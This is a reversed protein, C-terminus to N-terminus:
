SNLIPVLFALRELTGPGTLYALLHPVPMKLRGWPACFRFFSTQLFLPMSICLSSPPVPHGRTRLQLGRKFAGGTEM